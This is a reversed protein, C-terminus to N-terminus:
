WNPKRKEMFAAIGERLDESLMYNVRLSRGYSLAQSYTMGATDWFLRKGLQLAERSKEALDRALTLATTELEAGPVVQNVLGMRLAEQADFIKGTLSLELAKKDGV